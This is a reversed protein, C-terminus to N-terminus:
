RDLDLDSGFEEVPTFMSEGFYTERVTSALLGDREACLLVALFPADTHDIVFAEFPPDADEALRSLLPELPKVGDRFEEFLDRQGPQDAFVYVVGNPTGDQARTVRANMAEGAAEAENWARVADQFLQERTRTFAVRTRDLMEVAEFRPEGDTWALEARVRNGAELAEVARGLEGEYGARSVYTPDASTVDLLLWEERDRTSELVRFVGESTQDPVDWV